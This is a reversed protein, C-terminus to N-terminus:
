NTRWYLGLSRDPLYPDVVSYTANHVASILDVTQMAKHTILDIQFEFSALGKNTKSSTVDFRDSEDSLIIV